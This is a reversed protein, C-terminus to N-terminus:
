EGASRGCRFCRGREITKRRGVCQRGAVESSEWELSLDSILNASLFASHQMQWSNGTRWDTFAVEPLQFGGVGQNDSPRKKATSASRSYMSTESLGDFRSWLTPRLKRRVSRNISSVPLRRRMYWRSCTKTKRSRRLWLVPEAPGTSRGTLYGAFLHRKEDPRAPAFANRADLASNRLGFSTVRPLGDAADRTTIEIRGRGPRTFEATYPDRNIRVQQIAEIPVSRADMEVGDVVVTSGGPDAGAGGVLEELVSVYDTGLIPLGQLEESDVTVSSLNDAPSTSIENVQETVTVENRVEALELVIRLPELCLRNLRVPVSVPRFPPQQIKIEYAGPKLQKFRFVGEDDTAVQRGGMTVIVGPIPVGSPDVVSGSIVVAQAWAIKFLSIPLLIRLLNVM